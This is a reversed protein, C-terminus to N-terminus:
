RETVAFAICCEWSEGPVLWKRGTVAAAEPRNVANTMHTVPEVCFYNEDPPVYVITHALAADPTITLSHTPWDIRIPATRGTFGNDIRAGGFWDPPAALPTWCTPLCHADGNWRGDVKLDLRAGARPFYPHIGMGAPMPTDGRNTLSLRQVLYDQGLAFHQEARYPWPWDGGDYDHRLRANVAGQEVVDWAAQWGFGHIVQARGGETFNVPLSVTGEEAAFRGEAIRNSFPVLPFSGLGLPGTSGDGPRFIDHGRWRWAAIGGGCEPILVLEAHDAHLTLM